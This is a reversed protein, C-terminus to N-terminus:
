WRAFWVHQSGAFGGPSEAVARAPPASTQAPQELRALEAMLPGLHPEYRKWRDISGRYLPQRVQWASATQVPRQTAQFNLCEERWPLGCFDIISRTTGQQDGILQEYDVELMSLPLTQRWHQMLRDYQRYYFGLDALDWTYPMLSSFRTFYCSLCSDRADRRCHIIRAQPFLLAILGLNMFNWPLKDVVREADLYRNALNALDEQLLQRVCDPFTQRSGLLQPLYHVIEDIDILEGAGHAAPHSAIIQEVLTTGSRPMGVVFVPLQSNSGRAQHQAFFQRSFVSINDSVLRAHNARDYKRDMLRNATAYHVFAKDYQQLDDCIKGLGFHLFSRDEAAMNPQAVLTELRSLEAEDAATYRRLKTLSYAAHADKPNLSLVHEYQQRAEDFNGLEQLAHGLNRHADISEPQLRVVQWFVEIAEAHRNLLGLCKGLNLLAEYFDPRIRIAERCHAEAERPRGAELLALSLNSHVDAAEPHLKLAQSYAAIALDWQRLHFHAVGLLNYIAESEPALAIARQALQVALANQGRQHAIMGRMYLAEAFQPMQQLIHGCIADAEDLNGQQHHQHALPLLRYM